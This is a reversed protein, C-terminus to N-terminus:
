LSFLWKQPLKKAKVCMCLYILQWATFGFEWGKGGEIQSICQQHLDDIPVYETMFIPNLYVGKVGLDRLIFLLISVTLYSSIKTSDSKKPNQVVFGKAATEIGEIWRLLRQNNNIFGKLAETKRGTKIDM